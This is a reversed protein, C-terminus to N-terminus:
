IRDAFTPELRKFLWYGAGSLFVAALGATALHTPQPPEGYVAVRRYSETLCAIPNLMVWGRLREPVIELPYLIPTLFLLLQLGVPVVFRTDRYWVVIASAILALGSAIAAQLLILVPVWILEAHLPHRYWVLLVIFVSAAVAFDFLAAGVSGLPLVERPFAAKTVLDLNNILSTSGFTLATAFFTWPLLAAYYFLPFPAGNTPLREFYTSILTFVVMLATPQLVAWAAGLFTQKYRVKLERATWLRLLGRSRWLQEFSAYLTKQYVISLAGSCGKAGLHTSYGAGTDVGPLEVGRM